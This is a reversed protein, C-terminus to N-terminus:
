GAPLAARPLPCLHFQLFQARPTGKEGMQFSKATFLWSVHLGTCSTFSDWGAEWLEPGPEAAPAQSSLSPSFCGLSRPFTRSSSRNHLFMWGLVFRRDGGM